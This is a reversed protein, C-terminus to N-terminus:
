RWMVLMERANKQFEYDVARIQVQVGNQKLKDFLVDRWPSVESRTTIIPFVRVEKCVRVLELLSAQHMAEDFQDGYTFLFHSCLGLDFQRDAFPLSPLSGHIYRGEDLGRDYDALFQQMAALRRSILEDVSPIDTWLYDDKCREIGRAVESSTAKIREQLQAASFEFIPDVSTVRRGAATMEVNFSAPGDGCGLIHRQLDAESLGFMRTYEALSRGWPIVSSLQLGM